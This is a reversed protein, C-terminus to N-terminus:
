VRRAGPLLRGADPAVQQQRAGPVAARASETAHPSLDTSLVSRAGAAAAHVSFGGHCCFVDLVDGGEALDGFARRRQM